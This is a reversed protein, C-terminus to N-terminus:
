KIVKRLQDNIEQIIKNIDNLQQIVKKDYEMNEKLMGKIDKFEYTYM